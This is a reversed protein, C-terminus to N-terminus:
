QRRNLQEYKAVLYVVAETLVPILAEPFPQTAVTVWTLFIILVILASLTLDQRRAAPPGTALTVTEVTQTTQVSQVDLTVPQVTGVAMAAQAHAEVSVTGTIERRLQELQRLLYDVIETPSMSGYGLSEVLAQNSATRYRALYESVHRPDIPGDAFGPRDPEM